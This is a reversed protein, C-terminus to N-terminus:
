TFKHYHVYCCPTDLSISNVVEESQDPRSKACSDQTLQLADEELTEGSTIISRMEYLHKGHHLWMSWKQTEYWKM